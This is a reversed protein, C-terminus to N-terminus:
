VDSHRLRFIDKLHKIWRRQWKNLNHLTLRRTFSYPANTPHCVCAFISTSPSFGTWTGIGRGCVEGPSNVYRLSAEATIPRRSVAQSTVLATVTGTLHKSYWGGCQSPKNHNERWVSALVTGPILIHRRGVVANGVSLAIIV